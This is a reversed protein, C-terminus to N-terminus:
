EGDDVLADLATIAEDLNSYSLRLCRAADVIQRVTEFASEGLMEYNFANRAISMFARSPAVPVLSLKAGAEWRPFVVWAAPAEEDALAVSSAPAMVHAVTGKMTNPIAPGLMAEPAFAKMVEISANKLPMPRPIPVVKMSGPRLLGFEDSLLRWGRHVLAACLTTKGHGPSAPLLMVRGGREVAAAHLMLFRHFRMAVVLNLGWELVALAQDAPMDDHPTRGDVSFRVRRRSGEVSPRHTALAPFIRRTERLEVHASFVRDRELLPYNSYLRYLPEALGRVRAKLHFDFPGLRVGLGDGSLKAEFEAPTLAGVTEMM